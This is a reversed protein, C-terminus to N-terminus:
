TVFSHIIFSLCRDFYLIDVALSAQLVFSDGYQAAMIIQYLLLDTPEASGLM